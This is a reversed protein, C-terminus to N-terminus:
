RMKKENKWKPSSLLARSLFFFETYLILCITAKMTPVYAHQTQSDNQHTRNNLTITLWKKDNALKSSVYWYNAHASTQARAWRMTHSPHPRTDLALLAHQSLTKTSSCYGISGNYQYWKSRMLVIWVCMRASFLKIYVMYNLPQILTALITFTTDTNYQM